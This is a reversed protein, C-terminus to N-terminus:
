PKGTNITLWSSCTIGKNPTTLTSLVGVKGSPALGTQTKKVIKAPETIPETQSWLPSLTSENLDVLWGNWTAAAPTGLTFNMTLTSSAANYKLSSNNLVCNPTHQTCGTGLLPALEINYNGDSDNGAASIIVVYTGTLTPTVDESVSGPFGNTCSLGTVSSGTPDYVQMCVNAATSPNLSATIQFTCTATGLFEFTFADQATPPNLDYTGSKNLVLPIADPPTPSLRELSVDYNTPGNGTETVVITYSGSVALTQNFDVAGPFGNTCSPGAVLTDTPDFLQLCINAAPSSGFGLVGTWIDGGVAKFRFSDVDGTTLLQCSPGSYTEGSVIPVNQSPERPCPTSTNAWGLSPVFLVAFVFAVLLEYLNTAIRM